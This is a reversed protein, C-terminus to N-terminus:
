DEDIHSTVLERLGTDRRPLGQLNSIREKAKLVEEM